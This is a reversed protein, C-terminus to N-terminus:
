VLHIAIHEHSRFPHLWMSCPSSGTDLTVKVSIRPLTSSRCLPGEFLGERYRWSPRPFTPERGWINQFPLCRGRIHVFTMSRGKPHPYLYPNPMLPPLCIPTQISYPHTLTPTSIIPLSNPYPHPQPHHPLSLISPTPSPPSLIQFPIHLIPHSLPTYLSNSPLPYYHFYPSPTHLPWLPKLSPPLHTHLSVPNPTHPLFVPHSHKALPYPLCPLSYPSSPWYPVQPPLPLVHTYPYSPFLSPHKFHPYQPLTSFNPLTSQCHSPHILLQLIFHTYKPNDLPLPQPLIPLHLTYLLNWYHCLHKHTQHPSFPLPLPQTLWNTSTSCSPSPPIQSFTHPLIPKTYIPHTSYIPYISTTIPYHYPYPLYPM